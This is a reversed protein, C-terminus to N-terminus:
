VEDVPVPFHPALVVSKSSSRSRDPAVRKGTSRLLGTPNSKQQSRAVSQARIMRCQATFEEPSMPRKKLDAEVEKLSVQKMAKMPPFSLLRTLGPLAVAHLRSEELLM